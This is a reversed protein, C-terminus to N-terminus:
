QIRSLILAVKAHFALAAGAAGAAAMVVLFVVATARSVFADAPRRAPTPTREQAPAVDAFKGPPRTRIPAALEDISM